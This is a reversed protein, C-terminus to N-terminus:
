LGIRESSRESIFFRESSHWKLTTKLFAASTGDQPVNGFLSGNRPVNSHICDYKNKAQQSIYTGLIYKTYVLYIDRRFRVVVGRNPSLYGKLGSSGTRSALM